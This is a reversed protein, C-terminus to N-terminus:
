VQQQDPREARAQKLPQEVAAQTAEPRMRQKPQIDHGDQDGTQQTRAM